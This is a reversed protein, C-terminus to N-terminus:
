RTGTAGARIGSLGQQTIPRDAVQVPTQLGIAGKSSMPRNQMASASFLFFSPHNFQIIMCICGSLKWGTLNERKIKKLILASESNENKLVFISKIHM